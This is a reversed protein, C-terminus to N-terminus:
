SVRSDTVTSTLSVKLRSLKAKISNQILTVLGQYWIRNYDVHKARNRELFDRYFSALQDHSLAEDSTTTQSFNKRIYEQKELDFLQNHESWYRNNWDQLSEYQSRYFSEEPTEDCRTVVSVSRLKSLIQPKSVIRRESLARRLQALVALYTTPSM